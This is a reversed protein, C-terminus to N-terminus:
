LTTARFSEEYTDRVFQLARSIALLSPENDTALMEICVIQDTHGYKNLAARFEAHDCYGDGIPLLDPESLHVHGVSHMQTELISKANENNIAMAGSDIQLKINPHNTQEVVHSAEAATTMFNAGYQTPNPELCIVVGSDRAIDGLRSFFQIAMEDVHEPAIGSTDRNKPSGFVLRTAGLKEGIFCVSRLHELMRHQIDPKGFVNLGQTGFLLAQMGTIEIGKDQWKQKVLLIEDSRAAKIDKFYKGPAIDIADVHFRKLLEAVSDDDDTSWAINSISLRM